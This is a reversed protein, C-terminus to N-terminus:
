RVALITMILTLIGMAIDWDFLKQISKFERNFQNHQYLELISSQYFVTIIFLAFTSLSLLSNLTFALMWIIKHNFVRLELYILLLYALMVDFFFITLPGFSSAFLRFIIVLLFFFSAFFLNFYCASQIHHKKYTFKIKDLFDSM